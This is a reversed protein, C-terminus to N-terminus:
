EGGAGAEVTDEAQSQRRRARDALWNGLRRAMAFLAPHDGESDDFAEEIMKSLKEAMLPNVEILMNQRNADETKFSQPKILKFFPSSQKESM